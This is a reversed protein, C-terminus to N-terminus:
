GITFCLVNESTTAAEGSARSGAWVSGLAFTSPPGRPRALANRGLDMTLTDAMDNPESLGCAMSAMLLPAAIAPKRCLVPSPPSDSWWRM